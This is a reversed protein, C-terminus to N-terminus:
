WLGALGSHSLGEKGRKVAYAALKRPDQEALRRAEQPDAGVLWDFAQVFKSTDEGYADDLLLKADGPKDATGLQDILKTVAAQVPNEPAPEQGLISTVYAADLGLKEAIEEDTHGFEDKLAKVAKLATALQGKTQTASDRWRKVEDDEGKPEPEPEPDKDGEKNGEAEKPEGAGEEGDLDENDLDDLDDTVLEDENAELELGTKDM